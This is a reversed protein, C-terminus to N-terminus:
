GRVAAIAVIRARRLKEGVQPGDLGALDLDRPARARSRAPRQANRTVSLGDAM